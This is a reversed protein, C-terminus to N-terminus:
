YMLRWDMIRHEEAPNIGQTKVFIEKMAPQRTIETTCPPRCPNRLIEVAMEKDSPRLRPGKRKYESVTWIEKTAPKEWRSKM